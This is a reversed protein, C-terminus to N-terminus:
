LSRMAVFDPEVICFYWYNPYFKPVVLHTNCILLSSVVSIGLTGRLFFIWYVSTCRCSVFLLYLCCYLKLMDLMLLVKSFVMECCRILNRALIM